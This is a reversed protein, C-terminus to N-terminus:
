FLFKSTFYIGYLGIATIVFGLVGDRLKRSDVGCLFGM